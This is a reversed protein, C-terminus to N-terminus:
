VTPIAFDLLVHMSVNFYANTGDGLIGEWTVPQAIGAADQNAKLRMYLQSGAPLTYDGSFIFDHTTFPSLLNETVSEVLQNDNTADTQGGNAVNRIDLTTNGLTPGAWFACSLVRTPWPLLYSKLATGDAYLSPNLYEGADTGGSQHFSVYMDPAGTRMSFEAIVHHATGRVRPQREMSLNSSFEYWKNDIKGFLSVGNPTNGIAIDGNHGESDPPKRKVIKAKDAKLHDLIREERRM